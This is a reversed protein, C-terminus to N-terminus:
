KGNTEVFSCELHSLIMKKASKPDSDMVVAVEKCLHGLVQRLFDKKSFPFKNKLTQKELWLEKLVQATEEPTNKLFTIKKANLTETEEFSAVEELFQLLKKVEDKNMLKRARIKDLSSAPISGRLTRNHNEEFYPEYHLIKETTDKGTKKDAIKQVKLIRSRSVLIDGKQFIYDDSMTNGRM